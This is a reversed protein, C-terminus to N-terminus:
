YLPISHLCENRYVSVYYEVINVSTAIHISRLIMINQPFPLICLSIYM